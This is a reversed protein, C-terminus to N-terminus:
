VLRAPLQRFEERGIALIREGIVRPLLPGLMYGRVALSPM